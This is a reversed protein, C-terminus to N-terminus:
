GYWSRALLPRFEMRYEDGTDALTAKGLRDEFLRRLKMVEEMEPLRGMGSYSAYCESWRLIRVVVNEFGSNPFENMLELLLYTMEDYDDPLKGLDHPQIVITCSPVPKPM